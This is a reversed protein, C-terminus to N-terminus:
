RQALAAEVPPLFARLGAELLDGHIRALENRVAEDNCGNLARALACGRDAFLQSWPLPEAQTFEELMNVYHLARPANGAMLMAEIADRYFLLHNHGVAGQRLLEEGAALLSDREADSESVRSLASHVKPGVFQMGVDRCIALAERLPAVAEARRGTHFLLRAHMELNQAEFRRAGLQRILRLERELHLKMEDYAGLEHCALVRLTEGLMEARPQGVLAAARVTDTGDDQAERPENLYVRSFGVMSRNAVEIRGLGHERSLEVCRSFHTFATRM